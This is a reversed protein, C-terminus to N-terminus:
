GRARDRLLRLWYPEKYPDYQQGQRFPTKLEEPQMLFHERVFDPSELV